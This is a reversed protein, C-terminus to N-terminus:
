MYRDQVVQPVRYVVFCYRLTETYQTFSNFRHFRTDLNYTDDHIYFTGVRWGEHEERSKPVM